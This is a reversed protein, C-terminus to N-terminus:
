SKLKKQKMVKQISFCYLFVLFFLLGMLALITVNKKMLSQRPAETASNEQQVNQPYLFVTTGHQVFRDINELLAQRIHALEVGSDASNSLGLRRQRNYENYRAIIQLIENRTEGDSTAHLADLAEKIKGISVWYKLQNATLM